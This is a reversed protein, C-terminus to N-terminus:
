RLPVESPKLFRAYMGYRRRLSRRGRRSGLARACRYAAQLLRRPRPGRGLRNVWGVVVARRDRARELIGLAEAVSDAAGDAVARLGMRFVAGSLYRRMAAGASARLVSSLTTDAELREVIRTHEDFLRRVDLQRTFSGPHSVFLGVPRAFAVFPHRAAIRVYLDLDGLAVEPDLHGFKEIVWAQFLVGTLTPHNGGLISFLSEPPRRYEEAAALPPTVKLVDGDETMEVVQGAAFAADPHRRLVGLADEYFGPLLLDDDSLISFYPTAVRRLAFNINAIPGLNESHAHYELRGDERALAQVVEATADGSANDYVSVRLPQFGQALASQIARRLLVPRRYTPIITTVLPSAPDPTPAPRLPFAPALSRQGAVM